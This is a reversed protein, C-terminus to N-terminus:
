GSHKGHKPPSEIVRVDSQRKLRELALDRQMEAARTEAGVRSLRATNYAVCTCILASVFIVAIPWSGAFIQLADLM